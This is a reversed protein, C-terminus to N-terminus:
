QVLSELANTERIFIFANYRDPLITQVYNQFREVNPDYVVGIARHPIPNTLAGALEENSFDLWFVPADIQGLMAEWSGSIATPTEMRFMPSEWSNGAKVSGSLTGFGIAFVDDMGYYQRALQGINHINADAMETARADGIHTNHAWAIGKADEGYFQMLNTFTNKFHSARENWSEPGRLLMGRYHLDGQRVVRMNQLVNFWDADSYGSPKEANQLLNYAQTIPSGCHQGTSAANRLYAEHNGNFELLCDLASEVTRGTRSDMANTHRSLERISEWFSYVDMGYFGVREEPELTDNHERMWQVLDLTERNNWLWLPWRTFSALAEEATAPAGEKNKVFKNVTWASTWDGEVVIFSFGHSRILEKSLEARFTYYESTGHSAEGLLVVRREAAFAAIEAFSDDQWEIFHESLVTNLDTQASATSFSFWLFITAFFAFLNM